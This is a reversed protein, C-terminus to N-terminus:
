YKERRRQRASFWFGTDFFLLNLWAWAAEGNRYKIELAFMLIHMTVLFLFLWDFSCFRRPKRPKSSPQMNITTM